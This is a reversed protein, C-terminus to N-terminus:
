STGRMPFDETLLMETGGGDRRRGFARAIARKDTTALRNAIRGREVERNQGSAGNRGGKREKAPM